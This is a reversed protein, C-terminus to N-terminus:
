PQGFVEVEVYHNLESTTNGNSYLRVYRAKIGKADILKGESTEVYAMDKGAGLGATNDHDNNFLTTVGTKFDKDDSVQVVVDHYVRAQAHFHWAVIARLTASAGLDIQVWQQGPGFEVYTGESGDKDGDTVFSTEGIVPFTDSATVEKGKSLNVTGAPALFLPRKAGTPKELNPVKIPVPTGVFLPKPLELPIPVLDEANLAATATLVVTLALIRRIM